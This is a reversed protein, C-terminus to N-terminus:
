NDPLALCDADVGVICDEWADSMMEEKTYTKKEAPLEMCGADVGVICDEWDESLMEERTYSKQSQPAEFFAVVQRKTKPVSAPPAGEDNEPDSTTTDSVGNNNITINIDISSNSADEPM